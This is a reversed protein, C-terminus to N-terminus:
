LLDQQREDQYKGTLTDNLNPTKGLNLKTKGKRKSIGFYNVEWPIYKIKKNINGTKFCM